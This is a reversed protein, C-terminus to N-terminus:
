SAAMISKNPPKKIRAAIAQNFTHQPNALLSAREGIRRLWERYVESRPRGLVIVQEYGWDDDVNRPRGGLSRTSTPTVTSERKYAEWCAILQRWRGAIFSRIATEAEQVTLGQSAAVAETEMVDVFLKGQCFGPRTQFLRLQLRACPDPICEPDPEDPADDKCRARRLGVNLVVTIVSYLDPESALRCVFTHDGFTYEQQDGGQLLFEFVEEASGNFYFLQTQTFM